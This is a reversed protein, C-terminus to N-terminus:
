GPATRNDVSAVDARATIPGNDPRVHPTCQRETGCDVMQNFWAVSGILM